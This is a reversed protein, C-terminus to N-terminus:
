LVTRKNTTKPIKKENKFYTVCSGSGGELFVSNTSDRSNNGNANKGEANKWSSLDGAHRAQLLISVESGSDKHLGVSSTKGAVTKKWMPAHPLVSGCGHGEYPVGWCFGRVQKILAAAQLRSKRDAVEDQLQQWLKQLNDTQRLIDDQRMPNKQSLEWGRRMM